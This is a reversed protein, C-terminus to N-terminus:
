VQGCENLMWEIYLGYGMTPDNVFVHTRGHPSHNLTCCGIRHSALFPIAYEPRNTLRRLRLQCLGKAKTAEQEAIRETLQYIM